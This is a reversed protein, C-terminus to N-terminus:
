DIVTKRRRTGHALCPTRSLEVFFLTSFHTGYKPPRFTDTLAGRKGRMGGCLSWLFV